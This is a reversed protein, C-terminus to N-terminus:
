KMFSVDNWRISTLVQRFFMEPQAHVASPPQNWTIVVDTDASRVRVLALWVTVTANGDHLLQTGTMCPVNRMPADAGGPGVDPDRVAGVFLREDRSRAENAELLGLWHERLADEPTPAEAVAMLDFMFSDGRAQPGVFVEQNQPFDRLTRADVYSVPLTWVINGEWLEFDKPVDMMVTCSRWQVNFAQYKLLRAVSLARKM